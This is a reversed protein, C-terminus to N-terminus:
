FSSLITVCSFCKIQSWTAKIDCIQLCESLHNSLPFLASKAKFHLSTAGRKDLIRTAKVMMLDKETIMEEMGVMGIETGTAEVEMGKVLPSVTAAAAPVETGTVITTDVVEEVAVVTSAEELVEQAQLLEMPLQLVTAMKTVLVEGEMGVESVAGIALSVEEILVLGVESAEVEVAVEFVAVVSPGQVLQLALIALVQHAWLVHNQTVEAV